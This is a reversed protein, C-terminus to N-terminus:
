CLGDGELGALRWRRTGGRGTLVVAQTLVGRCVLRQFLPRRLLDQPSVAHATCLLATGCGSAEELAAADEASAVEDAALVQPTMARLLLTLAEAKPCGDLVDTHAGLDNMPTGHFMAALEGREDAVGVRLPPGEIGDSIRRILDRLLTTKGGGPPALIVTGGVAGAEKLLPRIGEAAGPVEKAIRISLSSLTGITRIVGNECVASGCLGVRHGGRVTVYGERVRDLVAHASAQTAIELTLRLDGSTVPQGGDTALPIEGEPLTVTPLRGIRLRLEEARVKDSRSLREAGQRLGKPLLSAAQSFREAAEERIPVIM